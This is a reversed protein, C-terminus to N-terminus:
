LNQQEPARMARHFIMDLEPSAVNPDAEEITLPKPGNIFRSLPDAIEDM